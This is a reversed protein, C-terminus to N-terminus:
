PIHAQGEDVKRDPPTAEPLTRFAPTPRRGRRSFARRTLGVLRRWFALVVGVGAAVASALPMYTEPGFYLM